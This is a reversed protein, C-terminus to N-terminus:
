SALVTDLTRRVGTQRNFFRPPSVVQVWRETLLEWAAAIQDELASASKPPTRWPCPMQFAVKRAIGQGRQGFLGRKPREIFTDM